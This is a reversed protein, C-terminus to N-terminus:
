ECDSNFRGSHGCQTRNDPIAQVVPPLPVGLFAEVNAIEDSSMPSGFDGLPDAQGSEVIRAFGPFDAELRAACQQKLEDDYGVFVVEIGVREGNVVLELVPYRGDGDGSVVWPMFLSDSRSWPIMGFLSLTNMSSIIEEQDSVTLHEAAAYIADADAVGVQGFDVGVEAIKTGLIEHLGFPPHGQGSQLGGSVRLRSIQRIEGVARVKVSVRYEGPSLLVVPGDFLTPDFVALKGSRVPLSCFDLWDSEVAVSGPSGTHQALYDQLTM